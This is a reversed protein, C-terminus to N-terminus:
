YKVLPRTMRRIVTPKLSHHHSTCSTRGVYSQWRFCKNERSRQVRATSVSTSVLHLISMQKKGDEAMPLTITMYFSTEGWDRTSSFYQPQLLFSQGSIGPPIGTHYKWLAQSTVQKAMLFHSLTKTVIKSFLRKTPLKASDNSYNANSCGM